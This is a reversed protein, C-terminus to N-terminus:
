RRTQRSRARAALTALRAAKEARASEDEITHETVAEDLTVGEDRFGDRQAQMVLSESPFRPNNDDGHGVQAQQLASTVRFVGSNDALMAEDLTDSDFSVPRAALNQLRSPQAQPKAKPKVHANTKPKSTKKSAM